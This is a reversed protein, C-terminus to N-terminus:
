RGFTRFAARSNSNEASKEGGERAAIAEKREQLLQAAVSLQPENAAEPRAPAEGAQIRRETEQRQTSEEAQRRLVGEAAEREETNPRANYATTRLSGGLDNVMEPRINRGLEPRKPGLEDENEPRLGSYDGQGARSKIDQPDRSPGEAVFAVEATRGLAERGVDRAAEAFEKQPSPENGGPQRLEAAIERRTSAHLQLERSDGDHGVAKLGRALRESLDAAYDHGAAERQDRLAARKSPDAEATIADGLAAQAKTFAAHDPHDEMGNAKVLGATVEALEREREDQPTRTSAAAADRFLDHAKAASHGGDPKEHAPNHEDTDRKDSM